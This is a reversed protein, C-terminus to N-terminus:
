KREESKIKKRIRGYFLAYIAIIIGNSLLIVMRNQSVEVYNVFTYMINDLFIRVVIRASLFSLVVTLICIVTNYGFFMKSLESLSYGNLKLIQIDRHVNAYVFELLSYMLAIEIIISIILIMTIQKNIINLINKGSTIVEQKTICTNAQDDIDEKECNTVYGYQFAIEDDLGNRECNLYVESVTSIDIIKDIEFTYIKESVKDELTFSDGEVYNYKEAYAETICVSFKEIDFYSSNENVMYVNQVIGDADYLNYLKIEECNRDIQAIKEDSFYLYEYPTEMGLNDVYEEVSVKLLFCFNILIGIMFVLFIYLIMEKKNRSIYTLRYRYHFTSNKGCGLLSFKSNKTKQKTNGFYCIKVVVANVINIAAFAIFIAFYLKNYSIKLIPYNYISQNMHMITPLVLIGVIVGILVSINGFLFIDKAYHNFIYLKDKGLNRLIQVNNKEAKANEYNYVFLLIVTIMYFIVVVVVSLLQPSSADGIVQKVRSNNAIDKITLPSYKEVNEEMGLGNKYAYYFLTNGDINEFTKADTYAVGFLASNPQLILESKKTMIYDPSIAKGCVNFRTDALVVVDGIHIDQECMFNNDFVIDNEERLIDGDIVQVLNINKREKFIRVVTDGYSVEKYEIKEIGEDEIDLNSSFFSGEELNYEDNFQYISDLVSSTGVYYGVFLATTIFIMLSIMFLKIINRKIRRYLRKRM